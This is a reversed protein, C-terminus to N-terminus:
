VEEGFQRSVIYAEDDNNANILSTMTVYSDGYIVTTTLSFFATKEKVQEQATQAIEIGEFASSSWFAELTDFGSPPRDSLVTAVTEAKMAEGVIMTVLAAKDQTLTNINIESLNTSPLACIFPRIAAFIEADIGKISRLETIDSILTNATRYAPFGGTYDFDEAGRAVPRSDSDIWDTVAGVITESDGASINIATLLTRMQKQAETNAKLDARDDAEVLSNVNFCNSSDRLKIEISGGEVPFLGQNTAWPQNLTTKDPSAQFTQDLIGLALTESSFAYWNAQSTSSINSARRIGFRIDDVLSVAVAAMVAVILLVTILVAGRENGGNSHWQKENRSTLPTM